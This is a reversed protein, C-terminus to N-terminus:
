AASIHTTILPYAPSRQLSPRCPEPGADELEESDSPPTEKCAAILMFLPKAARGPWKVGGNDM